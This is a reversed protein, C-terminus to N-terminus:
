GRADSQGAREREWEAISQRRRVLDVLLSAPQWHMDGFRARYREIGDLISALGTEEAYFM